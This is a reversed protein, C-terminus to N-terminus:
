SEGNMSGTKWTTSPMSYKLDFETWIIYLPVGVVKGVHPILQIDYLGMEKKILALHDGLDIEHSFVVYFHLLTM